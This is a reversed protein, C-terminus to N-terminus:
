VARGFTPVVSAIQSGFLWYASEITTKENLLLPCNRASEYVLDSSAGMYKLHGNVLNAPTTKGVGKSGIIDIKAPGLSLVASTCHQSERM